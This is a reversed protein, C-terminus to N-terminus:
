NKWYRECTGAMESSIEVKLIDSGALRFLPIEGSVKLHVRNGLQIRRTGAIFMADWEVRVKDGLRSEIESVMKEATTDIEGCIQVHRVISAIQRELWFKLQVSAVIQLCLSLIAIFLIMCILFEFYIDGRQNGFSKKFKNM